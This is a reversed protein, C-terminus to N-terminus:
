PRHSAAGKEARRRAEREDQWRTLVVLILAVVLILVPTLLAYIELWTM